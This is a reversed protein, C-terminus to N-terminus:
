RMKLRLLKTNSTIFLTKGDDALECNATPDPL